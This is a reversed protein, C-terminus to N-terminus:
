EPYESNIVGRCLDNFWQEVVEDANRGSYGADYLTQVFIDNWDLEFFGSSPDNPDEMEVSIVEVYPEGAETALDKKSQTAETLKEKIDALESKAEALQEDHQQAMKEFRDLTERQIKDVGAMKQILRKFM